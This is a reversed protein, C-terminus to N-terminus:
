NADNSMLFDLRIRTSRWKADTADTVVSILGGYGVDLVELQARAEYTDTTSSSVTIPLKTSVQITEEYDSSNKYLETTILDTWTGSNLRYQITLLYQAGQHGYVEFDAEAFLLGVLDSCSSANAVTVSVSNLSTNVGIANDITTNETITLENWPTITVPQCFECSELFITSVVGDISYRLENGVAYMTDVGGSANVSSLDVSGGNTISLVNGNISLTQNDEVNVTLDKLVIERYNGDTDQYYWKNDYDNTPNSKATGIRIGNANTLNLTTDSISLNQPVGTINLSDKHIYFPEGTATTLILYNTDPAYELDSLYVQATVYHCLVMLLVAWIGQKM